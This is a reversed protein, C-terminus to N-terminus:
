LKGCIWGSRHEFQPHLQCDGRDGGPQVCGRGAGGGAGSLGYITMSGALGSTGGVGNGGGFGADGGVDSTAPNDVAGGGGGFGGSGGIFGNGGGGGFGGSGGTGSSSISAGGGGGFGGNGGFFLGGNPPGGDGSADGAGALGAGGSPFSGYGGGDGGIAENGSLTSDFIQLSGQNYVAGGLGASGGGGDGYFGQAFGESLTLNELTLNGTTGVAFLRFTAGSAGGTGNITQGTGQITVPTSVFLASPGLSSDGVTSLDITVGALNAAFVITDPDGDGTAQAIEARLSGAGSDYPTTVTLTAPTTRDELRQLRLLGALSPQRSLRHM